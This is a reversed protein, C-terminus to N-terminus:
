IEWIFYVENETNILVMKNINDNLRMKRCNKSYLKIKQSMLKRRDMHFDEFHEITKNEM